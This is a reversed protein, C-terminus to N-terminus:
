KQKEKLARLIKDPTLPLDHIRVGIADYIANGITPSTAVLAPEGVGKAGYPGTPEFEEVIITRIMPVDIARPIGHKSFSPNTVRGKKFEMKETLSYGLGITAGGAIQGEVTQRNIAKGCDHACTLSLVTVQGTETDVEVEAVHTSYVLAPFELFMYSQVKEPDHSHVEPLYSGTGIIPGEGIFNMAYWAADKLSVSLEPKGEVSIRDGAIELVDQEDKDPIMETAVRLLKENVQRAAEKTAFGLTHTLRSGISSYDFTSGFTDADTVISIAELNCGIQEAAIMALMTNCQQGLDTASSLIHFTGDENLRITASSARFGSAYEKCAIGRGRMKTKIPRNRRAKLHNESYFRIGNDTAAQLTKVLGISKPIQGTALPYGTETANRIRFELPDLNLEDCIKDIQSESAWNSQPCGYGRFAGRITENTYVCLGESYCNPIKYPGRTWTTAYAVVGVGNDSYAGTNMIMKAKRACMTRDKKVGTKITVISPHRPFGCQVDEERDLVLKVPKYNTHLALAVAWISTATEMKGGFAGGVPPALVRLKSQPYNLAQGIRYQTFFTGQSSVWATVRGNLDCQAVAAQPELYQQHHSLTTFTDEFIYDAEDFGKEVNGLASIKTHSCVNGYRIAKWDFALDYNALDPHLIPADPDLAEVVDFVAPLEEYEVKVLHVAELATAEDIAAVAAVPEGLYLAKDWPFTVQDEIMWGWRRKPVHKHYIIYAVGPLAEAKRTDISIIRAHPFPSRVIKGTLMGPLKMDITFRDRGIAKDGVERSPRYTGVYRLRMKEDTM